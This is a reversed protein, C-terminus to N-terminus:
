CCYCHYYISCEGEAADNIFNIIFKLEKETFIRKNAANAKIKTGDTSFHSLDL